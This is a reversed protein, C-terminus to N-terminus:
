IAPLSDSVCLGIRVVRPLAAAHGARWASESVLTHRTRLGWAITWRLQGRACRRIVMVAAVPLAMVTMLVMLVVLGVM